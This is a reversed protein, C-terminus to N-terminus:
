LFRRAVVFLAFLGVVGGVVGVTVMDPGERDKEDDQPVSYRLVATLTGDQTLATVTVTGEAGAGVDRAPVSSGYTASFGDSYTVKTSASACDLVVRVSTGDVVVHAVKVFKATLTTPGTVPDSFDWKSGGDYWGLFANGEPPSVTPPAVTGGSRVEVTRVVGTEGVVFTVTVATGDGDSRSEWVAYLVMSLQHSGEPMSMSVMDGPMHLANGSPTEAWGVFRFGELRPATQSLYLVVSDSQVTRTAVRPVDSVGSMNGMYVIQFTNADGVPEASWVAYLTVTGSGTFTRYGNVAPISPADAYRSEAWGLFSYGDRHFACGDVPMYYPVSPTPDTRSNMTGTGGNADYVLTCSYSTREFVAYYTRQGTVVSPSADASGKGPDYRTASWGQFDYGALSFGNTPLAYRYGVFEDYTASQNGDGPNAFRVKVTEPSGGVWVAKLETYDSMDYLYGAPYVVDDASGSPNWGICTAGEKSVLTTQKLGGYGDAPVLEALPGNYTGGNANYAIVGVVGSAAVEDYSYYSAELDVNNRVLSYSGGLPYTTSSGDVAIKWGNQRKSGPDADPLKIATHYPGHGVDKGDLEVYMIDSPDNGDYASVFWRCSLDELDGWQHKSTQLNLTICFTGIRDPVGSLSVEGKSSVTVSFWDASVTRGLGEAMSSLESIGDSVTLTIRVSSGRERAVDMLQKAYTADLVPSEGVMGVVHQAQATDGQSAGGMKSVSVYGLGGWVAFLTTDSTVTLPQGPLYKPTEADSSTSWGMLVYGDRHPASYGSDSPADSKHETPLYIQNGNLVYQGYGGTGGNPGFVVLEAGVSPSGYDTRSAADSAGCATVAVCSLLVALTVTAIVITRNM